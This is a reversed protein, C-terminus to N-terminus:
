AIDFYGYFTCSDYDGPGRFDMVGKCIRYSGASLQGYLFSWNVSQETTGEMPIFYAESTWAVEFEQPLLEVPVWEGDFVELSYDSGFNLEGTPAGATQNFVLTAGSPTVDKATLTLGWNYDGGCVPKEMQAAKQGCAAWTLLICVTLIMAFYKKM